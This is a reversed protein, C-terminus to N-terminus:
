ALLQRGSVKPLPVYSALQNIMEYQAKTLLPVLVEYLTSSLTTLFKSREELALRLANVQGYKRIGLAKKATNAKTTETCVISYRGHCYTVAM